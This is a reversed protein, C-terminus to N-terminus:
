FMREFHLSLNESWSVGNQRDLESRFTAIPQFSNPISSYYRIPRGRDCIYEILAIDSKNLVPSWELASKLDADSAGTAYGNPNPHNHFIHVSKYGSRTCMDVVHQISIYLGVSSKNDGKNMYLYNVNKDKEFAVMIWEHKKHKLLAAALPPANNLKWDVALYGGDAPMAKKSDKHVIYQVNEYAYFATISKRRRKPSLEDIEQDNLPRLHLLIFAVFLGILILFLYEM